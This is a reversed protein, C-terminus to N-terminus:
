REKEKILDIVLYREKIIDGIEKENGYNIATDILEYGIKIGANIIESLNNVKVTGMGIVPIQCGNNLIIKKKMKM